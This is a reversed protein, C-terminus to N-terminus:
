RGSTYKTWDPLSKEVEPLAHSLYGNMVRVSEAEPLKMTQVEIKMYYGHKQLLNALEKRVGVPDNVYRGNCHFFYAINRNVAGRGPTQDEFVIFRVSEDGPRGELAPWRDVKYTTPEFGDAIYCRDPVHAVTDVLGTYYTFAADMVAEPYTNRFTALPDPPPPRNQRRYEEAKEAHVDMEQRLREVAAQGVRSSDVYVRFAYKDTGLVEEFEHNLPQDRSIQVWPGLRDPVDTLPRAIPVPQKKFHLKMYETAGNLSVAAVFLIVAVVVFAPQAFIQRLRGHSTAPVASGDATTYELIQKQESM